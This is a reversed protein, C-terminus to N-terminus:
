IKPSRPHLVIGHDEQLRQLASLVEDESVQLLEALEHLEPAYGNDIIFKIITYHLISNSAQRGVM